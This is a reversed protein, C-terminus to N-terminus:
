LLIIWYNWDMEIPLSHRIVETLVLHLHPWPWLDSWWIPGKANNPKQFQPIYEWDWCAMELHKSSTEIPSFWLSCEICILTWTGICWFILGWMILIAYNASDDLELYFSDDFIMAYKFHIIYSTTFSLLM